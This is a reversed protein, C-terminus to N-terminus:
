SERGVLKEVYKRIMSTDFDSSLDDLIDIAKGYYEDRVNTTLREINLDNYIQLVESVKKDDPIEKSSFLSSLRSRPESETIELAKLILFTKKNQIIDGGIQKGFKEQDGFADLLDDHLQFAIGLNYGFDFLQDCIHEDARGVLGGIRNAGAILAATKLSIMNLYATLSVEGRKEFLLDLQQGECVRLATINFAEIVKGLIEPQVKSIEQIAMVFMADGALIGTTTGFKQYVTSLGRRLPAHDMIDDHLLTFNHFLEIGLAPWLAEEYNGGVMEAAMLLMVPRMRKGGLRLTYDISEWLSPIEDVHGKKALAHELLQYLEVANHM